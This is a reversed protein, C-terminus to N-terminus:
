HLLAIRFLVELERMAVQKPVNKDKQKGTLEEVEWVPSTEMSCHELDRFWLSREITQWLDEPLADLPAPPAIYVHELQSGQHADEQIDLCNGHNRSM